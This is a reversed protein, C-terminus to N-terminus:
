VKLSYEDFLYKQICKYWNQSYKEENFSRHSRRQHTGFVEGRWHYEENYLVSKPDIEEKLNINSIDIDLLSKEEWPQIFDFVDYKLNAKNVKQPVQYGMEFDNFKYIPFYHQFRLVIDRLWTPNLPRWDLKLKKLKEVNFAFFIANPFNQIRRDEHLPNYPVGVIDLENDLLDLIIKDWDKQLIVFDPDILIAYKTDINDFIINMGTGHANSLTVEKPFPKEIVSTNKLTNLKEIQSDESSDIILRDYDNVALERTIKEQFEIYDSNYYNLTCLTLQNKNKSM